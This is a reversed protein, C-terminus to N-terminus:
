RVEKTKNYEEKEEREREREREEKAIGCWCLAVGERGELGKREWCVKM